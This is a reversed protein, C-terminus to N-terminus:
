AGVSGARRRSPLIASGSRLVTAATTRRRAGSGLLPLKMADPYRQAPLSERDKSRLRRQESLGIRREGKGRGYRWAELLDIGVGPNTALSWQDSWSPDNPPQPREAAAVATPIHMTLILALAALGWTSSRV